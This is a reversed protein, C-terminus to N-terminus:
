PTGGGPSRIERILDEHAKACRDLTFRECVRARAAAGLRCLDDPNRAAAAVAAAMAGPDSAPVLFGTEGDAVLDPLVGVRTALLPVGSAM